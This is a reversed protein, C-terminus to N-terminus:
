SPIDELSRVILGLGGAEAVFDAFIQQAESVRGRPTKVEVSVFQAIKAGIMEPTIEISRLGILDGSGKCLGCRLPRANDILVRNGPLNTADGAWGVGVNQRWVTFGRRSLELMIQRQLSAEAM